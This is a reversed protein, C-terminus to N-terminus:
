EISFSASRAIVQGMEGSDITRFSLVMRYTGPVADTHLDTTGTRTAGTRLGQLDEDTTCLRLEAPMMTWEGAVLREFGRGCLNYGYARATNNTLTVTVLDGVKYTSKDLTLELQGAPAPGNELTSDGVVLATDTSCGIVVAAVLGTLLANRMM